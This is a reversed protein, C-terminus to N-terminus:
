LSIQTSFCKLVRSRYFHVFPHSFRSAPDSGEEACLKAHSEPLLHPKFNNDLYSIISDRSTNKLHAHSCKSMLNACHQGVEKNLANIKICFKLVYM